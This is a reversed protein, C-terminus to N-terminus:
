GLCTTVIASHASTVCGCGSSVVLTVIVIFRVIAPNTQEAQCSQRAQQLPGFTVNNMLGIRLPIVGFALGFM